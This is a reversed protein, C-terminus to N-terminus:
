HHVLIREDEPITTVGLEGVGNGRTVRYTIQLERLEGEEGLFYPDQEVETIEASVPAGDIELDVEDGVQLTKAPTGPRDEMRVPAPPLPKSLDRLLAKDVLAQKKALIEAPLPTKVMSLPVTTVTQEWPQANACVYEFQRQVLAEDELSLEGTIVKAPDPTWFTQVAMPGSGLDVTARGRIREFSRQGTVPDIVTEHVRQQINRTNFVMELSYGDQKGLAVRCTLNSRAEGPIFNVDARQTATIVFMKAQRGLRLLSWIMLLVPNKTGKPKAVDPDDEDAGTAIAEAVLALYKEESTHYANLREVLEGAEDLILLWPQLEDERVGFVKLQAYRRRLEEYHARILAELEPETTAVTGIGPWTPRGLGRLTEPAYGRFSLEKPDGHDVRWSRAVCLDTIGNLFNTKGTGTPGVALMHPFKEPEWYALDGGAYQGIPIRMRDEPTLPLLPLDAVRPMPTAPLLTLQSAAPDMRVMWYGTTCPAKADLVYKLRERYSDSMDRTTWPYKAVLQEIQGTGDVTTKAQNIELGEGLMAKLTLEASAVAPHLEQLLPDAAPQETLVFRDRDPEWRIVVAAALFPTLAERLEASLDEIVQGPQYTVIACRLRRSRWSRRWKDKTLSLQTPVIGGPSGSGRLGRGAAAMVRTAAKGRPEIGIKVVLLVMGVTALAIAAPLAWRHVVTLLQQQSETSGQLNRTTMWVAGLVVAAGLFNLVWPRGRQRKATLMDDATPPGDLRPQQRLQTTM